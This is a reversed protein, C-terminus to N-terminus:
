YIMLEQCPALSTKKEEITLCFLHIKRKFSLIKVENGSAIKSFDM